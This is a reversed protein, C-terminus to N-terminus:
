IQRALQDPGKTPRYLCLGFNRFKQKLSLQPERIQLELAMERFLTTCDAFRPGINRSKTAYGKCPWACLRWTPKQKM